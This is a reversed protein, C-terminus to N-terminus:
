ERSLTRLRASIYALNRRTTELAERRHAPLHQTLYERLHSEEKGLMAADAKARHELVDREITQPLGYGQVGELWAAPRAFTGALELVARVQAFTQPDRGVVRRLHRRKLEDRALAEQQRLAASELVLLAAAARLNAHEMAESRQSPALALWAAADRPTLHLSSKAVAYLTDFYVNAPAFWYGQRAAENADAPIANERTFDARRLKKLVGNPTIATINMAAIRPVAEGLLRLTEVACNNTLFYYKGDYNWHRQAARRAIAHIDDQSLALPISRLGRLEVRTYEDIVQTLPLVFLRSPYGGSVGRWGAIHLDDVFARFSLVLHHQVDGRCVEGTAHEPACVVLRLMSHGFASMPRQNGEALLYDIAYIRQPDLQLLPPQSAGASQVFALTQSCPMTNNPTDDFHTDFWAAMDPRRCRYEGDLLYHELNVAFFERPSTLEYTDPSRDRFENRSHRGARWVARQWGAIELFRPDSSARPQASRDYVHALEHLTAALAVSDESAVADRLLSRKLSISWGRARGHTNAPLDDRWQVTIPRDLREAFRVPLRAIAAELVQQSASTEDPSLAKADVVFVPRAVAVSLGCLLAALAACRWIM